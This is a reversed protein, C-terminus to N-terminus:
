DWATTTTPAGPGARIRAAWWRRGCAPWARPFRYFTSCFGVADVFALQRGASRCAGARDSASRAARPPGAASRGAAARHRRREISPHRQRSSSRPRAITRSVEEGAGVAGEVRSDGRREVPPEVGVVGPRRRLIRPNAPRDPHHPELRRAVARDRAPALRRDLPQRPRRLQRQRTLSWGPKPRRACASASPAAWVPPISAIASLAAGAATAAADGLRRIAARGGDRRALPRAASRGSAHLRPRALRREVRYFGLRRRRRAAAGRGARRRGARQGPPAAWLRWALIAILPAAALRPQRGPPGPARELALALDPVLGVGLSRRGIALDLGNGSSRCGGPPTTDVEVWAEDIWAVAWAHADRSRVLWRREIADGSTPPTAWPTARRSDRGPAAAARDRQRLVRLPRRPEDASFGGARHTGAARRGLYRSCSFRGLFFARLTKM